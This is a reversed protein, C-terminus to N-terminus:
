SPSFLRRFLQEYATFLPSSVLNEAAAFQDHPLEFLDLDMEGLFLRVSDALSNDIETTRSMVPVVRIAEQNALRPANKLAKIVEITGDLSERNGVFLCVVVDALTTTALSGIETVGTRSDILLFDPRLEDQIRAQLDLFAMFGQGSPNAPRLRDGLEKLAAWYTQRPAPGAPMLRLWGNSNTPVPVSITHDELPPASAAGDATALLYPVAGGNFSGLTRDGGLKYHLGPAELDFDLAIVGKGLRNALYRAAHALLQSRGM